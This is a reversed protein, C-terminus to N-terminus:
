PNWWSSVRRHFIRSFGHWGSRAAPVSRRSCKLVLEGCSVLFDGVLHPRRHAKLGREAWSGTRDISKKVYDYPQYFQPCEDFSMMIDSGLNNQISIAKEPSLFM